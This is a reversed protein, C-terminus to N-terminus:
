VNLQLTYTIFNTIDKADCKPKWFTRDMEQTKILQDCQQNHKSYKM